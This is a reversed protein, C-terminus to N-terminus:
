PATPWVINFPDAQLTIDRLAQRYTAWPAADVPADPLQTWDCTALKDNRQSRVSAWQAATEEETYPELVWREVWAGDVLEPTVRVAKGGQPPETPEVPFCGYASADFNTMDNPFSTEPHARRLDTLTYPYIAPQEDQLLIYFM